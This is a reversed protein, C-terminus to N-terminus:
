NMKWLKEITKAVVKVNNKGLIEELHEVLQPSAIVNRNRPLIKKQREEELYIVINDQGDWQELEKLVEDELQFYAEKNSFKLWLENPISSFEVMNDAILKGNETENVNVRGRVFVKNEERLHERCKEYTKPFLLVETVGLMDEITIFAMLQNTRTVKQTINTIMGGITVIQGDEVKTKGEEDLYFDITAATVNKKWVAEVEEMPHGSIYVGLVEKEFGLLIEKEYEAVDPLSIEFEKKTQEDAFDFLSM